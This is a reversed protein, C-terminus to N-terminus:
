EFIRKLYRFLCAIKQLKSGHSLFFILNDLSIFSRILSRLYFGKQLANRAAVPDAIESKNLKKTLPSGTWNLKNYDDPTIEVGVMDYLKTGPLPTAISFIYVDAKIRDALKKTLEFEDLTETPLAIMFNALTRIHYKRALDFAKMVQEITIKKQIIEDLVRQSGSEVGFDIQRCGSWKMVKIMEEDITNVRSQCGWIIDHRRLIESVGQLHKRNITFTDDIIWLGEIRHKNKLYSIEKEINELSKLRL